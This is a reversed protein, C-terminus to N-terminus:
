GTVANLRARTDRPQWHRSLFFIEVCLVCLAVSIFLLFRCSAVMPFSKRLNERHGRHEEETIETNLRLNQERSRRRLFDM